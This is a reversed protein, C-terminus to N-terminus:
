QRSGAVDKTTEDINKLRATDNSSVYKVEAEIYSIGRRACPLERVLLNQTRTRGTENAGGLAEHSPSANGRLTALCTKGVLVV